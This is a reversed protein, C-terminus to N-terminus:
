GAEEIAKLLETKSMKSRGEIGLDQAVEYLEAKSSKASLESPAQTVPSTPAGELPGADSLEDAGPDSWEAPVDPAVAVPDTEDERDVLQRVVKFGGILAATVGAIGLAMHKKM